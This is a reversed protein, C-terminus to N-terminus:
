YSTIMLRHYLHNPRTTEEQAATFLYRRSAAYSKLHQSSAINFISQKLFV